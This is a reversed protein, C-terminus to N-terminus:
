EGAAGTGQGAAPKKIRVAVDEVNTTAADGPLVPPVSHTSGGLPTGDSIILRRWHWCSDESYEPNKSQGIYLEYQKTAPNFAHAAILTVGEFDDDDPIGKISVLDFDEDTFLASPGIYLQSAVKRKADSRQAWTIQDVKGFPFSQLLVRTEEAAWGPSQKYDKRAVAGPALPPM